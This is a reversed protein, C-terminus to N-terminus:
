YFHSEGHNFAIKSMNQICQDFMQSLQFNFADHFTSKILVGDTPSKLVFFFRRPWMYSLVSLVISRNIFQWLAVLGTKPHFNLKNSSFSIM